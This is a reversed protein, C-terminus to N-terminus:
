DDSDDWESDSIIEVDAFRPDVLRWGKWAKRHGGVSSREGLLQDLRTFLENRGLGHISGKTTENEALWHKYAELALKPEVQNEPDLFICEKMFANLPNAHFEWEGHAVGCDLPIDWAGRKRLRRVGAIFRVLIGPLEDMMRARRKDSRDAGAIRHYFPFVLARENLADSIDATRPFHNALIMPLARSVFKLSEGWKIDATMSKEESVKKIFGDPLSATRSYDDDV